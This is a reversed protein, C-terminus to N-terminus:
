IFFAFWHVDVERFTQDQSVNTAAIRFRHGPEDFVVTLAVNGKETIPPDSKEVLLTIPM